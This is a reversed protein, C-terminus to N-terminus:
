RRFRRSTGPWTWTMVQGYNQTVWRLYGANNQINVSPNVGDAFTVTQYVNVGANATVLGAATITSNAILSGAVTVTSYADLTSCRFGAWNSNDGLRM